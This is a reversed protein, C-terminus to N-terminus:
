IKLLILPAFLINSLFPIPDKKDWTGEFIKGRNYKFIKKERLMQPIDTFLDVWYQNTKYTLTNDFAKSFVYNIYKEVLNQGCKAAFDISKWARPNMEIAKYNGNEDDYIFEIESIGTYKLKNLIEESLLKLEEEYISRLYTGTGFRDPHQRIKEYQFLGSIKGEISLTCCSKVPKSSSVIKQIILEDASFYDSIIEKLSNDFGSMLVAKKGTHNRLKNGRRSKLIFPQKFFDPPNIESLLYTEARNTEPVLRNFEFKDFISGLNNEPIFYKQSLEDRNESFFNIIDENIGFLPSPYTIPLSMLKETILSDSSNEALNKISNKPLKIYNDTYRSFRSSCFHVDNLVYVPINLFDASRIIGLGQVSNGLIVLSPKNM